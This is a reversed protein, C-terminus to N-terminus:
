EREALIKSATNYTAIIKQDKASHGKQEAILASIRERKGDLKTRGHKMTKEWEELCIPLLTAPSVTRRLLGVFGSIYDKGAAMERGNKNKRDADAPVLSFANKWIFLIGFILISIFLGQLHYKRFLSVIGKDESLGLHTEDFIIKKHAGILWALLASHREKVMAENSAFYSDTVLVLSGQGIIREMIVPYGNVEYVSIWGSGNITFYNLSHWSINQPLTVSFGAVPFARNAQSGRQQIELAFQWRATLKILKFMSEEKETKKSKDAEEKKGLKKYQEKEEHEFTGTTQPLLCLVIRGGGTAINELMQVDREPLYRLNSSPLGFYFFTSNHANAIKDVQAFNRNVDIGQINRLSEYFAKVGLPDARLSSYPPYIDGGEFRLIFLQILGIIFATLVLLLLFIRIKYNTQM